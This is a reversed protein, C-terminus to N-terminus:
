VKKSTLKSGKEWFFQSSRWVLGGIWIPLVNAISSTIIISNWQIPGPLSTVPTAHTTMLHHFFRTLSRICFRRRVIRVVICCLRCFQRSKILAGWLLNHFQWKFEAIVILTKFTFYRSNIFLFHEVSLWIVVTVFFYPFGKFVTIVM